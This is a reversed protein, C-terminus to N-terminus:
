RLYTDIRCTSLNTIPGIPLVAFKTYENGYSQLEVVYYQLRIFKAREAALIYMYVFAARRESDHGM